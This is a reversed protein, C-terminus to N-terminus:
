LLRRGHAVIRAAWEPELMELTELAVIDVSIDPSLEAAIARADHLRVVAVGRTALDIDSRLHFGGRALSGHLWVETAGLTRLAAAVRAALDSARTAHEAAAAGDRELAAATERPSVSM